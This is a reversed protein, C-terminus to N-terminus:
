WCADALVRSLAAPQPARYNRSTGIGALTRGSCGGIAFWNLFCVQQDFEVSLLLIEFVAISSAQVAMAIIHRTKPFIRRPAIV